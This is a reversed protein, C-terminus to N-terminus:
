ILEEFIDCYNSLTHYEYLCMDLGLSRLALLGSHLVIVLQPSSHPRRISLKQGYGMTLRDSTDRLWQIINAINVYM